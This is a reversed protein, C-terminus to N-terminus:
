EPLEMVYDGYSNVELRAKPPVVITTTGQEIVAPGRIVNGIEMLDGDYIPTSVFGGNEDFYVERTMKLHKNADETVFAEERRSPTAVKGCAALRLNIMETDTVDRYGYLREHTQHFCEIIEPIGEETLQSEDIPTEVEHFQNEYRM